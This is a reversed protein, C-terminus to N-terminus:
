SRGRMAFHGSRVRTSFDLFHEPSFVERLHDLRREVEALQGEISGGFPPTWDPSWRDDQERIVEILTFWHEPGFTPALITILGDLRTLNIPRDESSDVDELDFDFADENQYPVRDRKVRIYVLFVPNALLCSVRPSWPTKGFPRVIVMGTRAAFREIVLDLM